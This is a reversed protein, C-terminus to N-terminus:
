FGYCLERLKAQNQLNNNEIIKELNDKVMTEYSSYTHIVYWKATNNEQM